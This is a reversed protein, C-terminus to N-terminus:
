FPFSFCRVLGLGISSRSFGDLGRVWDSRLYDDQSTKQEKDGKGKITVTPYNDFGKSSKPSFYEVHDFVIQAVLNILNDAAAATNSYQSLPFLRGRSYHTSREQTRIQPSWARLRRQSAAMSSGPGNGVSRDGTSTYFLNAVHSENRPGLAALKNLLTMDFHRISIRGMVRKFFQNQRQLWTNWFHFYQTEYMDRMADISFLEIGAGSNVFTTLEDRLPSALVAVLKDIYKQQSCVTLANMFTKQLKSKGGHSYANLTLM